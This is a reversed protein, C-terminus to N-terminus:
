LVKEKVEVKEEAVIEEKSCDCKKHFIKHWYVKIYTGMVGFGLGYMLLDMVNTHAAHDPCLGLFHMIWEIM